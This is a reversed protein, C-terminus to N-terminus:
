QSRTRSHTNKKDVLRACGKTQAGRAPATHKNNHTALLLLLQNHYFMGMRELCTYEIRQRM